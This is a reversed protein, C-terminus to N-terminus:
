SYGMEDPELPVTNIRRKTDALQYGRTLLRDAQHLLQSEDCPIKRTRIPQNLGDSFDLILENDGHDKARLNQLQEAWEVVPGHLEDRSQIVVIIYLDTMLITRNTPPMDMSDLLQNGELQPIRKVIKQLLGYSNDDRYSYPVIVGRGDIRRAKRIPQVDEIFADNDLRRSEIMRTRSRGAIMGTSSAPPVWNAYDPSNLIVYNRQRQRTNRRSEQFNNDNKVLKSDERSSSKQTSFTGFATRTIKHNLSTFPNGEKELTYL